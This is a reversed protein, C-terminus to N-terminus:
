FRHLVMFERDQRLHTLAARYVARRQERWHRARRVEPCLRRRVLRLLLGPTLLPIPFAQTLRAYQSYPMSM